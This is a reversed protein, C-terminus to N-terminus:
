RSMKERWNFNFNETKETSRRREKLLVVVVGVQVVHDQGSTDVHVVGTQGGNRGLGFIKDPSQKPDIGFQPKSGSRGQSM